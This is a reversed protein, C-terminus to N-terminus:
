NFFDYLVERQAETYPSYKTAGDVTIANTYGEAEADKYDYYAAEAVEAVSRSNNAETYTSYTYTTNTGDNVKVYLIASFARDYNGELINVIACNVVYDNGDELITQADIELYKVGTIATCADLDAKTFNLGNNTLYDTPTILMGIEVNDAGYQTKLGDVFSKQVAGTFRLGTPEDMRVAAGTKNTMKTSVLGKYIRLNSVEAWSDGNLSKESNVRTAYIRCILSGSISAGDYTMSRVMAYTGDGRDVYLTMIESVSDVEVAFSQKEARSGNIKFNWKDAGEDSKNIKNTNWNYWYSCGFGDILLTNDGDVQIGIGYTNYAESGFDVDFFLTYKEGNNLSFREEAAIGGWMARKNNANFTKSGHLLHKASTGDESVMVYTNWNDSNYYDDSWATDLFNVTQLLDGDNAAAYIAATDKKAAIAEVSTGNVSVEGIVITNREKNDKVSNMGHKVGIAFYKAEIGDLAIKHGLKGDAGVALAADGEAPFNAGKNTGDGCMDTYSKVVTWSEGDNSVLIDYEDNMNWATAPNKWEDATDGALWVTIDQLASKANLQFMAFGMYVGTTGDPDDLVLKGEADLYYYTIGDYLDDSQYYTYNSRKEKNDSTPVYGPKPDGDTMSAVSGYNAHVDWEDSYKSLMKAYKIATVYGSTPAAVEEGNVTIDGFFIAHLAVGTTNHTENNGKKVAVSIYRLTQDKMDIKHGVRLYGDVTKSAYDADGESPFNEGKASGTGCMKDFEDIVFWTEGDLSGLIDYAENMNWNLTPNSWAAASSANHGDAGLWITMDNIKSFNNLEIVAYARYVNNVEYVSEVLKGQVNLYYFKNDAASNKDILYESYFYPWSDDASRTSDFADGDTIGAISGYQALIEAGGARKVTVDVAKITAAAGEEAMVPLTFPLALAIMVVALVLSLVKKMIQKKM